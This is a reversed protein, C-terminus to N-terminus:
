IHTGILYKVSVYATIHYNEESNKIHQVYNIAENLLGEIDNQVVTFETEIEWDRVRIGM